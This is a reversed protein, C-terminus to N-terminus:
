LVTEFEFGFSVAFREAEENRGQRSMLDMLCEAFTKTYHHDKGLEDASIVLAERCLSETESWRSRYDAVIMLGKIARLRRHNANRGSIMGEDKRLLENLGHELSCLGTIRQPLFDAWDHLALYQLEAAYVSGGNLNCTEKSHRFDQSEAIKLNVTLDDTDGLLTRANELRMLRFRHMFEATSTRHVGMRSYQQIVRTVPHGKGQVACSLDAAFRGFLEATEFKPNGSRRNMITFVMGLLQVHQATIALHFQRHVRNLLIRAWKYNSAASEQCARNYLHVIGTLLSQGFFPQTRILGEKPFRNELDFYSRYYHNSEFFIEEADQLDQTAALCPSPQESASLSRIIDGRTPGEVGRLDQQSRPPQQVRTRVTPAEVSGLNSADHPTLDEGDDARVIGRTRSYRFIRHMKVDRGRIEIRVDSATAPALGELLDIVAQKESAKYNKQLQWERIKTKYM